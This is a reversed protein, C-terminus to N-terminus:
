MVISQLKVKYDGRLRFSVYTYLSSLHTYLSSRIHVHCSSFCTNAVLLWM